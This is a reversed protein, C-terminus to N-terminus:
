NEDDPEKWHDPRFDKCEIQLTRARRSNERCNALNDAFSGAPAVTLEPNQEWHPFSISADVVLVRGLCCAEEPM